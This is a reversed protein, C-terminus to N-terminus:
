DILMWHSEPGICIRHNKVEETIGDLQYTELYTSDSSGCLWIETAMLEKM